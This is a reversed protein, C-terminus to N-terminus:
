EIVRDARLLIPQPIALGLAGATKMNIVLEFKTPQEIPLDAPKAGKLIKDVYAAARLFMEGRNASYSMLGGVEVHETIAFMAPLRSKAALEALRLRLGFYMPDQVVLLAGARAKNAAAFAADLEEASRAELLQLSIQLAQATKETERLALPSFPNGPNSLVAVRGLRPITEKLLELQKSYLETGTTSSLGTVNGGPRALSAVLGTGVPDGPNVMVIPIIQTAEKAARVPPDGGAAVIVDVKLDALETALASLRDFNGDAYRYEIAINKGEVYGLERLGQRFFEVRAAVATGSAPFLVAIHAIKGPTRQAFVLLPAVGIAVLLKRRLNM